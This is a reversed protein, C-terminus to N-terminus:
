NTRMMMMLFNKGVDNALSNKVLDFPKRLLIIRLNRQVFLRSRPPLKDGATVATSVAVELPACEKGKGNGAGKSEPAPAPAAAEGKAIAEGGKGTAAAAKKFPGDGTRSLM